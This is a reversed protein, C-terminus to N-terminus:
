AAQAWPVTAALAVLLWWAPHMRPVRSDRGPHLSQALRLVRLMLLATAFSSLTLLPVTWNAATAEHLANKLTSKALEGTTFPLGALSIAPLALIAMRLRSAGPFNGAALFLAAKNLGHHLVLVALLAGGRDGGPG